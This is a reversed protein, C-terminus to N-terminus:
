YSVRPLHPIYTHVKGKHPPSGATQSPAGSVLDYSAESDSSTKPKTVPQPQLTDTSAKPALAPVATPEATPKPAVAAVEGDDEDDEDEDEEDEEDDEDDEESDDEDWRVEEEDIAADKLLAKRKQEELDLENRLFYYRIWFRTYEVEDLM